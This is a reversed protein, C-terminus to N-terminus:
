RRTEAVPVLIQDTVNSALGTHFPQSFDLGKRPLSLLSLCIQLIEPDKKRYFERAIFLPVFAPSSLPDLCYCYPNFGM